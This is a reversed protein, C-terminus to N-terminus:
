RRTRQIYLHDTYKMAIEPCDRIRTPEDKELLLAAGLYNSMVWPDWNNVKVDTRGGGLYGYKATLLPTFVRRNVEYFIRSRILPSIEDLAAGAFYDTWAMVCARNRRYYFPRGTPEEVDPLGKGAKQLGVHAAIGWYSEECISWVGNM